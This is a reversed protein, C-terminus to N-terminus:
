FNVYLGVTPGNEDSSERFRSQYISSLNISLYLLNASPVTCCFISVISIDIEDTWNFYLM